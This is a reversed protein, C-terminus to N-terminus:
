KIDKEYLRFTRKSYHIKNDYAKKYCQFSYYNEPMGKINGGFEAGISVIFVLNSELAKVIRLLKPDDSTGHRFPRLITNQFYYGGTPFSQSLTNVMEDCFEKMPRIPRGLNRFGLVVAVVGKDKLYQVETEPKSGSIGFPMTSQDFYKPMEQFYVDNWMKINEKCHQDMIYTIMEIRTPPANFWKDNKFEVNKDINKIDENPLDQDISHPFNPYICFAVNSQIM